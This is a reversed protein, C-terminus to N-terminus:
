SYLKVEDPLYTRHCVDCELHEDGEGIRILPVFFLTFWRGVEQRKYPRTTDCRHCHFKGTRVTKKRSSIGFLIFM